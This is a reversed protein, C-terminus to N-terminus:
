FDTKKGGAPGPPISETINEPGKNGPIETIEGPAVSAVHQTERPQAFAGALMDLYKDESIPRGCLWTWERAVDRRAGDVECFWKEPSTMNGAEDLDGPEVWIRCPAYPGKAVLRRMFWGAQPENESVRPRNRDAEGHKEIYALTDRHWKYIEDDTRPKRNM